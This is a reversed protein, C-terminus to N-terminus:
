MLVAKRHSRGHIFYYLIIGLLSIPMGLMYIGSYGILPVLFGGVIPGITIGIDLFIYYTSNVMGLREPSSYKVGISLTASQLGGMGAGSLFAAILLMAGNNSLGTLLTGVAYVALGTYMIPNEGRRDFSRGVIPRTTIIGAAYLMFFYAAANELNSIKSSVSLFTVICGYTCYAIGCILAIPLSRTDFVGALGKPPKAVIGPEPINANKLKIFPILLIDLLAVIAITLFLFTYNGSRTLAAALFPGIATGLTTSMSFFGMGIGSRGKPILVSAITFITTSAIGLSFGHLIRIAILMGLSKAFFYCLSIMFSSVYGIILCRICGVSFIIRGTIVRTIIAAFVYVSTTAGALATSAGFTNIAYGSTSVMLLLFNISTLFSAVWAFIYDKTIWKETTM